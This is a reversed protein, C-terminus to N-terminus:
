SYLKGKTPHVPHDERSYVRSQSGGAGAYYPAGNVRQHRAIRPRGYLIGRVTCAQNCKMCMPQFTVLGADVKLQFASAQGIGNRLLLLLFEWENQGSM